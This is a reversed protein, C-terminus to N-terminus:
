GSTLSPGSESSYSNLSVDTLNYYRPTQFQPEEFPPQPTNLLSAETQSVVEFIKTRVFHQSAPPMKKPRKTCQCFFNYLPDNTSKSDSHNTDCLVLHNRVAEIIQEELKLM